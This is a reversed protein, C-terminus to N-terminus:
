RGLLDLARARALAASRGRVGLAVYVNHLHWKVTPISLNVRDAVQENSLGEDLMALMQMQRSTLVCDKSADGALGTASTPDPILACLSNLFAREAPQILGLGQATTAALVRKILGLKMRFPHILKGPTALALAMSFQRVAMRHHGLRLNADASILLIEIGDRERGQVRAAKLLMRAREIVTECAGQALQLELDALLWDGRERMAIPAGAGRKGDLGIQEAEAQARGAHGLELLRRVKSAALLAPGRTPHCHAVRELLPGLRDAEGTGDWFAVSAVLGHELSCLIGHHTARALVPLVMDRAATTRGLDLLARAHVLDMTVMVSADPGIVCLVQQRGVCLLEDAVGPRAQGIEICARLIYVWALGYASDSREIAARALEMRKRAASLDGRDIETIAAFSTVAAVTLADSPEGRELWESAQNYNPELRDLFVNVLMRLFRLRAHAAGGALDPDKVVRRDFSELAQRAREYQLTDCLAWVYWAHAEPTPQVGAQTLRDVWQILTGMQGHDGVTVRAVRDLMEVALDTAGAELAIGIAAPLDGRDQHWRAARELLERRRAAGFQDGAEALLFDRMLTHFRFWRRSSDLPFTLVNRSVLMDLWQPALAQGTMHAALEANFERLLALEAMFRALGPDFGVLVRQTLMRAMDLHDGSFRELVNSIDARGEGEESEAALLVQLLRVAAAWVETKAVIRDLDRRDTGVIGAQELLRATSASDFSLQRADLEMAGVELKARVADVPVRRTSSLVLHLATARGFVLREIFHVLANDECFGLNDVFLVTTGQLGSLWQVMGDSPAAPDQFAAPAVSVAEPPQEGALALASRLRFLLSPLDIDRDDLTLWLCRWDRSVFEQHLRSLLVTKGYGPPATVTVLRPFPQAQLLQVVARTPVAEFAFNPPGLQGESAPTPAPRPPTAASPSM